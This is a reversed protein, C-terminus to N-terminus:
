TTTSSMTTRGNRRSMMRGIVDGLKTQLDRVIVPRHWYAGPNSELQDFLADRLFYHSDLVFVPEGDLDTM